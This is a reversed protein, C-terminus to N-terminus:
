RVPSVWCWGCGFEVIELRREKSFLPVREVETPFSVLVGDVELNGEVM